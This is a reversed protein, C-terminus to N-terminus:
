RHIFPPDDHFDLSLAYSNAYTLITKIHTQITKNLNTLDLLWSTPDNDVLMGFNNERSRAFM